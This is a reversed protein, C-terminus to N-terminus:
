NSTLKNFDWKISVMFYRKITSYTSQTLLSGIVNREFGKNQNLIDYGTVNLKLNNAKFFTKSFNINWLFRTLDENFFGTKERFQYDGNTGLQLKETLYINISASSNFGYGNNNFNQLSSESIIYNPVFSGSIDYKNKKSKSFNIGLNLTQYKTRNLVNNIKNYSINGVTQAQLGVTLDPGKIKRSFIAFLSFISANKEHMNIFQSYSKGSSDTITNSVIPNIVLGFVGNLYIFQDNIPKFSTFESSFLHRFSPKLDQNGIVINLPDTNIRIPQLQDTNPQFTNGIYSLRFSGQQSYNYKYLVQPNWLAFNRNIEQNNFNNLQHYNAKIFNSGISINTKRQSYNVTIGGENLIQNFKYDNSFASDLSKYEGSLIRNFAKRDSTNTNYSFSYNFIASFNKAILETFVVKSKFLNTNIYNLKNQDLNQSSDLESENNFFNIKSRLFGFSNNKNFSEDFFTSLTRGKRKFKKTYLMSLHFITRDTTSNINRKNQNLISDNVKFSTSLYDNNTEGHSSTIDVITKIASTSDLKTIFTGDFKHRFFQNKFDLNNTNKILRDPLNNRTLIEKNGDIIISGIKYNVNLSKKDNNSKNNFHFGGSSIIPLGQGNYNGNFSELEDQDDVYVTIAGGGDIMEVNSVSNYRNNDQYGLGVKGTNALTGYASIKKNGKFQNFMGQFQYFKDTGVGADAKGFYGSKKNEKLKINITKIKQNDDIGTFISQDSKKDFVQIKDVMDARVNQTVLTPDDGFFEEGDVLVRSVKQGQARIKGDKDVQIGPLQKLLDEVKANPQVTFNGANYELTDNQIKMSARNAKIIVEALLKSKLNLYINGFDYGSKLSDLSFQEVYDAYEPYSIILLYQDQKLNNITFSGNIKARSYKVVISDKSNLVYIIANELFQNSASDSVVGKISKSTQSFSFNFSFIFIIITLIFKM